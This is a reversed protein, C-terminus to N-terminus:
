QVDGAISKRRDTTSDWVGLRKDDLKKAKDVAKEYREFTSKFQPSKSQEVRRQARTPSLFPSSQPGKDIATNMSGRGHTYRVPASEDVTPLTLSEWPPYTKEPTELIATSATSYRSSKRSLKSPLDSTMASASRRRSRENVFLPSGNSEQVGTEWRAKVPSVKEKLGGGGGTLTPILHKDNSSPSRQDDGKTTTTIPSINKKASRVKNKKNKGKKECCQNITVKKATTQNLQDVRLAKKEEEYRPPAKNVLYMYKFSEANSM